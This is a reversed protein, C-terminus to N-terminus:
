SPQPAGNRVQRWHNWCTVALTLMTLPIVFYLMANGFTDYAPHDTADMVLYTTYAVYYALLVGGEWRALVGGTFFMPLTVLAVGCMVPLDFWAMSEPVEIPQPSITTSVGLVCLLNFLNSGVVNGIAMDRQGRLAAVISTVVEPLSTGAAVITLGVVEESVNMWRALAVAGAVLWRSGLVLMALGVVIKVISVGVRDDSAIVEDDSEASGAARGLRILWFTYAVIGAFLLLGEVRDYTGDSAMWWAVLSVGIMVPVDFRILQTAVSLPVIIASLGLIFLVNFINSGIVNGLAIAGQQDIAAQVSVGLEPASTGFAVVTLGVVLSSIGLRLALRAAGAVLLEAGWTLLVLGVLMLLMTM